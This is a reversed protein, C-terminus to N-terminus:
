HRAGLSATILLTWSILFCVGGIPTIMGLWSTGTISLTYLSGSFLLIGLTMISAAPLILRHHNNKGILGIAILGLSHFMHYQVGTDYISRQYETLIDKLGHAGFAGIAVALLAMLCGTAIIKDTNPM